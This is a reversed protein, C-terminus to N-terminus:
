FAASNSFKPSSDKHLLQTEPEKFVKIRRICNMRTAWPM